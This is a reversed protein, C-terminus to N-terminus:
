LGQLLVKAVWDFKGDLSRVAVKKVMLGEALHRERAGIKEMCDDGDWIRQAKAYFRM